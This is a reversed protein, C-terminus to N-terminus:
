KKNKGKKYKVTIIINHVLFYFMILIDLYKVIKQVLAIGVPRCNINKSMEKDAPLVAAAWYNMTRCKLWSLEASHM